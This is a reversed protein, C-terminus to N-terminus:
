IECGTLSKLRSISQEGPYSEENIMWTPYGKIGNRLCEGKDEDCDIYDVYQFSDGFVAKQQKCHSCWEAGYMKAGKETLCQAFSDLEGPGKACGSILIVLFLFFIFKKM